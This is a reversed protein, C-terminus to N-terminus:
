LEVLPYLNFTTLVAAMEQRAFMAYFTRRFYIGLRELYELNNGSVFTKKTELNYLFAINAYHLPFTEFTALFIINQLKVFEPM